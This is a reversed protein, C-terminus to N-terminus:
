VRGAPPRTRSKQTNARARRARGRGAAGADLAALVAELAPDRGAAYEAWTPSARVDPGLAPASLDYCPVGAPCPAASYSHLGNAFHALRPRGARGSSRRACSQM